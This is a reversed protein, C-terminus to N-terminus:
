LWKEMWGVLRELYDKRHAPYGVRTVSAHSGNPYRVFEVEAGNQQLTMFLQEGQGIPVRDDAEGHLILVPPTKRDQTLYTIPSRFRYEEPNEDPRAGMQAPGFMHGIDATGYFSVLDVVPAGIVAAKFRDTHGIIWSAMFGGYSYGYVGLRNEDIWPQEIAKDVVAMLDLYDEGGWDKTVAMTFDRGYSGSGRPNAFVVAFGAGALAQQFNSFGPGYWSNPGGHVDLVLPYKKSPDFGAPKLLWAEIELGAREITFKEWAPMPTEAFLEANPDIIVTSSRPEHINKVIRGSGDFGSATQYVAGSVRDVNLGGRVEGFDQVPELEAREVDFRYLGSSGGRFAHLLVLDDTLWVPQSPPTVTPFGQDPQVPLDITLRDTAGSAVDYLFLDYQWTQQTDGGFIIKEGDPSWAWMGFTGEEPGVRTVAGTAVDILGLQGAMNNRLLIRAALTRGDPSWQPFEFDVLESTLKRKGSGDAAVLWVQQRVDNLFGRNDQKYDYRRVVRVRPAANKDPGKDEPDDPDFPATYALTAGDPSWTLGGISGRHRALETADGGAAPMVFVANGDDGRDSLFAVREGDPSWRPSSGQMTFVRQGNGDADATWIATKSKAASPDAWSRTFLLTAGDPSIQPDGATVIDYIIQRPTLGKPM